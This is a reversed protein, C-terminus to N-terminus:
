PWTIDAQGRSLISFLAQWMPQWDYRCSWGLFASSVLTWIVISILMVIFLALPPSLIEASSNWIRFLLPTFTSYEIYWCIQFVWFHGCSQFPDTKMRIGFFPLAWVVSLSGCLASMECSLLTMSLIRWALSWCYWSHVSFKWINLSHKSFASSGSIFNGVIMSFCPFEM